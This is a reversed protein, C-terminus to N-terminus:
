EATVLEGREGLSTGGPMTAGRFYEPRVVNWMIMLVVGLLISGIGLVAVGGVGLLTTTGADPQAYDWASKVFATLLILGGLFPLIGKLWLDRASNRLERRFHWTSAFGTLGYYFAILLGIAAILDTLSGPSLWTLGAYFVVSVIGM